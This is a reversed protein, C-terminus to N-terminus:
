LARCVHRSRRGSTGPPLVRAPVNRPLNEGHFCVCYTPLGSDDGRRDLHIGPDHEHHQEHAKEHDQEVQRDDVDGYRRDLLSQVRTVIVDEPHQVAVGEHVRHEKDGPRSQAVHEAGFPEEDNTEDDKREGRSRARRRRAVRLEDYEPHNLADAARQERWLRQRDDGGDKGRLLPADRETQPSRQRTDGRGDAGNEAAPEDGIEGPLRDKEDVNRDADNGHDQDVQEHRLDPGIVLVVEVRRADEQHRKPQEEADKRQDLSLM